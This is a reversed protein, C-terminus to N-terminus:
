ANDSHKLTSTASRLNSLYRLIGELIQDASLGLSQQVHIYGLLTADHGSPAISVSQMPLVTTSGPKRGAGPPPPALPKGAKMQKEWLEAQARAADADEIGTSYRYVLGNAYFRCHWASSEYHKIEGKALTRKIRQRYISAM